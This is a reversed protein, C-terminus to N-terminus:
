GTAVGAITRVGQRDLVVGSVTRLAKLKLPPITLTKGHGAPAIWDTRAPDLGSSLATVRYKMGELLEGEPGFRGDTGARVPGSNFAVRGGIGSGNSEKFVGEVHITVDEPSGGDERAITGALQGAPQLVLAFPASRSRPSTQAAITPSSVRLGSGDLTSGLAPLDAKGSANTVVAM